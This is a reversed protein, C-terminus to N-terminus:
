RRRRGELARLETLTDNEPAAAKRQLYAWDLEERYRAVLLETMECDVESRRHKCANLRDIILDELGIIVCRLGEELDVTERPAQEGAMVGAPAEVALDLEEHVWYRGKRLFGLERLPRQVDVPLSSM